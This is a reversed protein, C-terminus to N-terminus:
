VWLGLTGEGAVGELQLEDMASECQLTGGLGQAPERIVPRHWQARSESCAHQAVRRDGYGVHSLVRFAELSVVAELEGLLVLYAPQGGGAREPERVGM